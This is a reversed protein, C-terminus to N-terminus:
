VSCINTCIRAKWRVDGQTSRRSLTSSVWLFTQVVLFIPTGSAKLRGNAYFNRGEAKFAVFPTTDVGEMIWGTEKWKENILNVIELDRESAFQLVRGVRQVEAEELIEDRQCEIRILQIVAKRFNENERFTIRYAEKLLEVQKNSLKTASAFPNDVDVTDLIDAEETEEDKLVDFWKAGPFELRAIKSLASHFTRVMQSVIMGLADADQPRLRAKWQEISLIALLKERLEKCSPNTFSVVTITQPEIKLHCIMFVVRLILTTSKGSGAGAAVCTAPHDTLIMEWQPPTPAAILGLDVAKAVEQRMATIMQPTVPFRDPGYLATDPAIQPIAREDNITWTGEKSKSEALELELEAIEVNKQEITPALLKKGADIGKKYSTCKEADIHDRIFYAFLATSITSLKEIIKVLFDSM